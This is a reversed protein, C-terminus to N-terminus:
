TVSFVVIIGLGKDLALHCNSKCLLVIFKVWCFSVITCINVQHISCRGLM